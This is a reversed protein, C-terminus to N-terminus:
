ALGDRLRMRSERMLLFLIPATLSSHFDDRYSAQVILVDFAISLRAIKDSVVRPCSTLFRLM